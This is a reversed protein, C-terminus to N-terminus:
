VAFQAPQPTPVDPTVPRKEKVWKNWGGNLVKAKAHGYYDLVWWLRAAYLGGEDDYGVVTTETGIGREAMLTALTDGPLVYVQNDPDKLAKSSLHVAGPIHHQRYAEESRLDVIRLNPADLHQALWATEALLDPRAYGETTALALAAGSGLVLLASLLMRGLRHAWVDRTLRHDQWPM